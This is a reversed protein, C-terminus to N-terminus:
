RGPNPPNPNQQVEIGLAAYLEKRRAELLQLRRELVQTEVIRSKLLPKLYDMEDIFLKLYSLQAQLDGRIGRTKEPIGAIEASLLELKHALELALKLEKDIMDYLKSYEEEYENASKVVLDRNKYPERRAPDKELLEDKTRVLTRVPGDVQKNANDKGTSAIKVQEKYWDIYGHRQKDVHDLSTYANSWRAESADRAEALKAIQDKNESYRGPRDPIPQRNFPNYAQHWDIRQTYVGVAWALFFLSMILQIFVLLKGFRTM